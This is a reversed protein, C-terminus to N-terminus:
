IFCFDYHYILTAYIEFCLLLSDVFKNSNFVCLFIPIYYVYVLNRLFDCFIFNLIKGYFLIFIEVNNINKSVFKLIFRLRKIGYMAYNKNISNIYEKRCFCYLLIDHFYINFMPMFMYNFFYLLSNNVNLLAHM